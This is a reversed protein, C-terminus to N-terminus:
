QCADISLGLENAVFAGLSQMSDNDIVGADYLARALNRLGMRPTPQQSAHEGMAGTQAFVKTAQGWCASDDQAQAGTAGFAAVVLVIALVVILGSTLKKM